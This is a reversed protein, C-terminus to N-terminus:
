VEVNKKNTYGFYFLVFISINTIISIICVLGSISLNSYNNLWIILSGSESNGNILSIAIDLVSHLVVVSWISNTKDFIYIYLFTASFLEVLYLISFDHQTFHIFIFLFGSILYAPLKGYRTLSKYFYGRFFFEENIGVTIYLIVLGILPSVSINSWIWDTSEMARLLFIYILFFTFTIFVGILTLFVEKKNFQFGFENLKRKSLYRFLLLSYVVVILCYVGAFILFTIDRVDSYNSEDFYNIAISYIVQGAILLVTFSLLTFILPIWKMKNQNM